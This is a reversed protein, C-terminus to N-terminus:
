NFPLKGGEKMFYELCKVFKHRKKVIGIVEINIIKGKKDYKNNQMVLVFDGNPAGVPEYRSDFSLRM